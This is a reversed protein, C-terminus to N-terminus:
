EGWGGPMLECLAERKQLAHHSPSGRFRSRPTGGHGRANKRHSAPPSPAPSIHVPPPWPRARHQGPPLLQCAHAPGRACLLPLASPGPWTAAPNNASQVPALLGAQQLQHGPPGSTPTLLQHSHQCRRAAALPRYPSSPSASLTRLSPTFGTKRFRFGGVWGIGQCGHCVHDLVTCLHSARSSRAAM